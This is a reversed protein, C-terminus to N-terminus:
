YPPTTPRDQVTPGIVRYGEAALARYLDGLGETGILRPCSVHHRNDHGGDTRCLHKDYRGDTLKLTRTM